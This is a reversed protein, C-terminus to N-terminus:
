RNGFSPTVGTIEGIVGEEKFIAPPGSKQCLRWAASIVIKCATRALPINTCRICTRHFAMDRANYCGSDDGCTVLVGEIDLFVVKSDLDKEV